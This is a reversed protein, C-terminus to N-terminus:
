LKVNFSLHFFRKPYFALLKANHNVFEKDVDLINKVGVQLQGRQGSFRYSYQVNTIWSNKESLISDYSAQIRQKYYVQELYLQAGDSSFLRVGFPLSYRDIYYFRDIFTEQLADQQSRDWNIGVSLALESSPYFVAFANAITESRDITVLDVAIPNEFNRLIDSTLFRRIYYGGFKVEDNYDAHYGISYNNSKEGPDDDFLQPFGSFMTPKITQDDGDLAGVTQYAALRFKVGSGFQVTFGLKPSWRIEDLHGVAGAPPPSSNSLLNGNLDFYRLTPNSSLTRSYEIDTFDVALHLSHWADLRGTYYLYASREVPSEYWSDKRDFIATITPGAPAEGYYTDINLFEYDSYGIGAIFFHKESGGALQVEALRNSSDQSFKQELLGLFDSSGFDNEQQALSVLLWSSGTLRQKLGIRYSDRDITEGENNNVEDFFRPALDGKNWLLKTVQFQVSSDPSVQWQVFADYIDQEQQADERWGDTEFHYQGLSVAVPGALFSGVIDDGWTGDSGGYGNVLGYAGNQTFLSHYENFSPNQPGAGEVVSIGTESLQPQLPNASLPQWLQSQLLESARLQEFRSQGVYHDALLRHGESNTPDTRLADWASLLVGQDYGVEDYARALTASRSAADSQLLTESRYLAREDNLKKSTELEEIASIPDNAFLKRVGEYFYATPDNPDLQKALQWQTEAEKDRKEEFYARGLYSRMVSRAPDLSVAYELQQRGQELDGQRLLTLGLGLHAQPNEADQKIAQQFLKQAESLHIGFLQVFGAQTAVYANAPQYDQATEIARRAASLNGMALEMESVRAWAIAATLNTAVPSQASDSHLSAAQKAADLALPLNLNTQQAYSLALWASTSPSTSQVARKALDLAQQGQNRTSYIISQLALSQPSNVGDLQQRARDSQGVSLLLSAAAVKIKDSPLNVSQLQKLALDIRGRHTSQIAQDLQPNNEGSQLESLIPMPSFYIAWDIVQATSIPTLRFNSKAGQVTLKQGRTVAQNGANNSATVQGEIVTVSNEAASASVIFETGDVAANVYPADVVFRKSIRSIFHTIGTKLELWFGQQNQQVPFSLVTNQDLRVFSNNSLYIAARSDEGVKLSQGPCVLSNAEALQTQGQQSIQVLGNVSVVKAVWNECAFVNAQYLSFFLLLVVSLRM